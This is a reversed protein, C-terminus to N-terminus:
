YASHILFHIWEYGFVLVWGTLPIAVMLIYLARHDLTAVRREWSPGPRPSPVTGSLRWGIRLLVLGLLLFGLSKHWQILDFALRQDQIRVMALGLAVQGAFLFAMTWHLVISVLGYGSSTNRMM